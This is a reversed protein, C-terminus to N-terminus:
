LYKRKRTSRFKGASAEHLGAHLLVQALEDLEQRPRTPDKGSGRPVYVCMGERARTLLVRYSNLRFQAAEPQQITNWDHGHLLRPHWKSETPIWRLDGGWCVGAYDIELGQCGFESLPMELAGSSRFDPLQSLFWSEIDSLDTSRPPEPLGEAILRRAAGSSARLGVRRGGRRRALLWRKLESFSRTLYAPRVGDENDM